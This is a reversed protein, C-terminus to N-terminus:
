ELLIELFQEPLVAYISSAVFDSTNRTVIFEVDAAEAAESTVADEFDTM